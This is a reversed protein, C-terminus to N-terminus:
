QYLFRYDALLYAVVAMWARIVYAPDEVLRKEGAGEELLKEGTTLSRTRDCSGPLRYVWWERPNDAILQQGTRLATM